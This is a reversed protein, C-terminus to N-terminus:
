CLLCFHFIFFRTIIITYYAFVSSSQSAHFTVASLVFLAALQRRQLFFSTM